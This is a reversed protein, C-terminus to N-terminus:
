DEDFGYETADGLNIISYNEDVTMDEHRGDQLSDAKKTLQMANKIIEWNEASLINDDTLTKAPALELEPNDQGSLGAMNPAGARLPQAAAPLFISTFLIGFAIWFGCHQQQLTASAHRHLIM